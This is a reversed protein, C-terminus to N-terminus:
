VGSYEKNPEYEFSRFYARYTGSLPMEVMVKYTKLPKDATKMILNVRDSTKWCM